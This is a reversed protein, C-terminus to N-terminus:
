DSSHSPKGNTHGRGPNSRFYKKIWILYIVFLVFFIVVWWAMVRGTFFGLNRVREIQQEPYGLQGYLDMPDVKMFTIAASISFLTFGALTAWWATIKLRLTGWALYFGFAACILIMLTAPTGSLLMGFWPVANRSLVSGALLFFAGLGLWLSSALVPLPCHDTWRALPDRAACTAQVHPSRYFLVMAGPLVVFLIVLIIGAVGMAFYAVPDSVAGALFPRAFVLLFGASLVGGLLWSWSVVLMLVRAWRRCLISGIGLWIMAAGCVGYVSIAFGIMRWDIAESTNPLLVSVLLMFLLLLACFGGIVIELIGFVILGARRDKYVAPTPVTATENM